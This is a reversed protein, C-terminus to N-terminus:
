PGVSRNHVYIDHHMGDHAAQRFVEEMKAVGGLASATRM